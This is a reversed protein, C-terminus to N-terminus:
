SLAEKLYNHSHSRLTNLRDNVETWDVEDIPSANIGDECRERIGLNTLLERIRSASKDTAFARFPKRFLVSFVAAHFSNALVADANAICGLFESPGIGFLNVGGPIPLSRDSVYAVRKGTSRSMEIASNVLEPCGRLLYVFIFDDSLPPEAILQKYDPGDLLLTPDLVIEIPKNTLPQFLPVTEEERVSICDFDSLLTAVEAEDFNEKKFATHALSPAYAVRRKDGAFSLFFPKVVGSTCDLNWIQDSGCVFCDFQEQLEVLKDEDGVEYRHETLQLHQQAFSEFSDRRRKFGTLNKLVRINRKPHLPSFLEYQRQDASRYDIISTEHGMANLLYQLAYAQLASGFNHSAHFTITGIRM